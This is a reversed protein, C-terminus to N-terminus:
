EKHDKHQRYQDIMFCVHQAHHNTHFPLMLVAGAGTPRPCSCAVVWHKLVLKNLYSVSHQSTSQQVFGM